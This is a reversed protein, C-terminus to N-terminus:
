KLVLKKINTFLTIYYNCVDDIISIINNKKNNLKYHLNVKKVLPHSMNYGGFSIDEHLQLGRSILNGFTHDENNLIVIGKLTDDPNVKIDTILIKLNNLKKIINILAVEMIRIESIQGRSKICFEIEDDNILNYYSVSVPSYMANKEEINIDTIVSLILEQSPQLKIIPIPNKYPSEIQNQQFYFKVDNTSVTVIDNTKNKYNVYM